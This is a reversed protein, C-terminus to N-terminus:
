YGLKRDVQNKLEKNEIFLELNKFFIKLVMKIYDGQSDSSIHPTIILNPTDWFNSNKPVPEHSFVDLIAGAIENKELKVRLAEYDIVSQRGINVIGCTPKLSDLRKKNILGITELTEPVALYLFDAIPLIEDIKDFTIIKSCGEVKNGKRNVGIVEAGLKSIHKIMSGGLSGTGVVVVKFGNIPKSLLTIFEKNKQNTVIRTIQNQLMLISMLGFEGAKKAHVGSSNTLVLDKMMWDFPSLHNVGASSVHIWKLNPAIEWLNETPFQWGLLINADKMSSSFNDDDWDILYDIKNRIDPHKNLGKEFEEKNITSHKEGELDCPLFGKKWHNNRIHIKIKKKM